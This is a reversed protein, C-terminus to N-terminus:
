RIELFRKKEQSSAVSQVLGLSTMISIISSGGASVLPLTIGTIPVIGVNMGINVFVQFFIMLFVGWCVTSGFKDNSDDAIKLIKLLLTFYLFILFFSGLFGWEEALSAFIFDAQREPLFKLQSQTGSGLGKGFFQGSGVAITSQLLHYGSGLPDKVPNIFSLIRQRQYEALLRWSLPFFVLIFLIGALLYTKKIGFVLNIGLWTFLIVLSTGLDPQKFILFAPISLTLFQIIINKFKRPPFKCIIWSFCLILLPKILEAPQFSLSGIQIWRHAERTVKGIVFTLILMTLSLIYFLPVFSPWIIFNIKSILFFILFGILFFIMQSKALSPNISFLTLDGLLFIVIVTIILLWDLSKSLEM